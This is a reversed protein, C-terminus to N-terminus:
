QSVMNIVDTRLQEIDNQDVEIQWHRSGLSLSYKVCDMFSSLVAKCESPSQQTKVLKLGDVIKGLFKQSFRSSPSVVQSIYSIVIM